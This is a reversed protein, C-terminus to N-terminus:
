VVSKRDERAILVLRRPTSWTTVGGHALGAKALAEAFMRALDNRARAQMRAPVEESLLELLFDSM